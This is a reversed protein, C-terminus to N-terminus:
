NKAIVNIQIYSANATTRVTTVATLVSEAVDNLVYTVLERADAKTYALTRRLKVEAVPNQRLKRGFITRLEILSNRFDRRKYFAVKFKTKFLAHFAIVSLLKEIKFIVIFFKTLLIIRPAEIKPKAKAKVAQPSSEDLPADTSSYLEESSTISLELSFSSCLEDETFFAFLEQETFDTLEDEFAFLEEDTLSEEDDALAELLLLAFDEDLAFLLEDAFDEEDALAELLLLDFDEDLAFLLEDALDEDEALTDLLLMTDSDDLSTTLEEQSSDLLLSVTELEENLYTM